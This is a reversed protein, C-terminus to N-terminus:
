NKNIKQYIKRNLKRVWKLFINAFEQRDIPKGIYDDLGADLYKEKAGKFVDATVAIIVPRKNGYMNILNRTTEIGDMRPMRIDMLVIDYFKRKFYNLVEIGNEALDATYGIKELLKLVVKQNILNDEAVLIKLSVKKATTTDFHM